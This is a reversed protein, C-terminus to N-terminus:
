VLDIPRVVFTSTSPICTEIKQDRLPLESRERLSQCDIYQRHQKRILKSEIVRKDHNIHTGNLNVADYTTGGLFRALVSLLVVSAVIRLEMSQTQLDLM